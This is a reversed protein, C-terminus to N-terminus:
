ATSLLFHGAGYSAGKGVNCLSGINLLWLIDLLGEGSLVVSGKIGGIEVKEEEGDLTRWDKWALTNEREQVPAAGKLLQEADVLEFDGCTYLLSTVRRLIFPLLRQFTPRFLPRNVSLLRAPTQM